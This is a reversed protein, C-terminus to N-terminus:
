ITLLKFFLYIKEDNSVRKNVWLFDLINAWFTSNKNLTIYYFNENFIICKASVYKFIINWLSLIKVKFSIFAENSKKIFLEKVHMRSKIKGLYFNVHLYSYKLAIKAWHTDNSKLHFNINFIILTKEKWCLQYTNIVEHQRGATQRRHM